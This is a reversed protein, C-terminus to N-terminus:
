SQGPFTVWQVCKKKKKKLRLRKTSRQPPCCLLPFLQRLCFFFGHCFHFVPFHASFCSLISLRSEFNRNSAITFTKTDASTRAYLFPFRMKFMQVLRWRPAGGTGTAKVFSKKEKRSLITSKREEKPETKAGTPQRKIYRVKKWKQNRWLCFIKWLCLAGVRPNQSTRSAFLIHLYSSFRAGFILPQRSFERPPSM